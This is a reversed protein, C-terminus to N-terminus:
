DRKISYIFDLKENNHIAKYLAKGGKRNIKITGFNPSTKDYRVWGKAIYQKRIFKKDGISEEVLVSIDLKDGPDFGFPHFVQIRKVKNKKEDVVKLLEISEGSIRLLSMKIAQSNTYGSFLWNRRGQKKDVSILKGTAVDTINLNSDEYSLLYKVGIQKDQYKKIDYDMFKEDKYAARLNDLEKNLAREILQIKSIRLIANELLQKKRSSNKENISINVLENQPVPIIKRILSENRIAYLKDFMKLRKTWKKRSQIFSKGCITRHEEVKNPYVTTALEVHKKGNTENIAYLSFVDMKSVKHDLGAGVIVKKIKKANIDPITVDYIDRDLM